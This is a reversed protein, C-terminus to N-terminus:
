LEIMASAANYFRGKGEVKKLQALIAVASEAASTPAHEGGLKTRVWGPHM